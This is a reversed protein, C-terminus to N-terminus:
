YNHISIFLNQSIESNLKKKLEGGGMGGGEGAGKWYYKGGRFIMYGKVGEM